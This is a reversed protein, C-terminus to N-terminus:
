ALTANTAIVVWATGVFMLIAYEGTADFTITTGGTLHAPTVVMDNTDKTTLKIVKLQGVAGDALTAAIAATANTTYGSYVNTVPIVVAGSTAAVETASMIMAASHTSNGTVALTGAIATNGSTDAVTFKNTDCAIGGNANLAGTLTTAGTIACTGGMTVNGTIAATGSMTMSTGAIIKSATLTDSGNYVIGADGCAGPSADDVYIMQLAM